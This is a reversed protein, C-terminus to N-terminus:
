RTTTLVPLAIAFRAGREGPGALCSITGGHARVIERAIYLGIGSGRAGQDGGPRHHEVRFFKEFVREHFEADVGPGSDTVEICVHSDGAARDPQAEVRIRGGQPTYKIANTLVNSLVVSLRDADGWISNPADQGIEVSVSIGSERCSPEVARLGESLLTQLDVRNRQLRLQGAEIQTLDLFKAITSSLQEAGFLATSILSRDREELQEAREKLMLLTMRLTTLPTRLEHSAVAVLEMRMEDLRVFDTLDSLVLVAGKKHDSGKRLPVIRPLLRRDEKGVRMAIVDSLNGMRPEAKVGRLSAGIAAKTADPLSLDQLHAGTSTLGEFVEHARPNASSVEGTSEIVVVADPLAALAAELTEKARMVEGINARRFAALADAMRNFGETLRGIEDHHDISVRFDFEGRRMAEVADTLGRIPPIVVSALYMSVVVSLLLAALSLGLLFRNSGRAQDRAWTAVDETSRFHDERVDAVAGVARRLLPNVEANYLARAGEVSAAALLKDGAAHYGEVDQRLHSAMERNEPSALLAEFRRLADEVTRRGATLLPRGRKKNLATQLLADDERELASILTGTVATTQEGDRVTLDVVDSLRSFAWASYVSTAVTIAVLITGAVVFRTRLSIASKM